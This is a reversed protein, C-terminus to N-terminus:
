LMKKFNRKVAGVMEDYNAYTESDFQMTNDDYFITMQMGKGYRWEYSEERYGEVEKADIHITKFLNKRVIEDPSIEIFKRNLYSYFTIPVFAFFLIPLWATKWVIEPEWISEKGSFYGFLLLMVGGGLSIWKGSRRYRSRVIEYDRM